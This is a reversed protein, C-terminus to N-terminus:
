NCQVVGGIDQCWQGTEPNFKPTMANQQAQRAANQASIAADQAARARRHAAAASQRQLELEQAQDSVQQQLNQNEASLNNIKDVVAQARQQRAIEAQQQRRQEAAAQEQVLSAVISNYLAEQHHAVAYRKAEEVAGVRLMSLMAQRDDANVKAAVEGATAKHVVTAGPGACPTDTYEYGGGHLPCKYISQAAAVLPAGFALMVGALGLCLRLDTM